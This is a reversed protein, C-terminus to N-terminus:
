SEDGLIAIRISEHVAEVLGHKAVHEAKFSENQALQAAIMAWVKWLDSDSIPDGGARGDFSVVQQSYSGDEPFLMSILVLADCGGGAELCEAKTFNGAELEDVRYKVRYTDM